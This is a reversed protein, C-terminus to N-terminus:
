AGGQALERAKAMAQKWYQLGTDDAYAKNSDLALIDRLLEVAPNHDGNALKWRLGFVSPYFEMTSDSPMGNSQIARAWVKGQSAPKHPATGGIIQYKDGGASITVSNKEYAVSDAVFCLVCLRGYYDKGTIM